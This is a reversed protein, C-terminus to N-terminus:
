DIWVDLVTEPNHFPRTIKPVYVAFGLRRMRKAFARVRMTKTRRWYRVPQKRSQRSRYRGGHLRKM